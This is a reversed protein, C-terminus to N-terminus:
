DESNDKNQLTNQLGALGAFPRADEDSMPTKGPETFNASEVFAGEIRPYSPLAIALATVMVDNLNLQAPLPEARDDEPMEIESAEIEMMEKLYFHEVEDDIRTTVPELTVVCPQVVTAGLKATLSWDTKGKPAIEGQFRLKRLAMLDLDKSIAKLTKGTPVLDFSFPRSKPMEAFTIIDRNDDTMM